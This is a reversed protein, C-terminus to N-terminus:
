LTKSQTERENKAFQCHRGRASVHTRGHLSIGIYYIFVNKLTAM